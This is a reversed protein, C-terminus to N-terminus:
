YISSSSQDHNCLKTLSLFLLNEDFFYVLLWLKLLFFVSLFVHFTAAITKDCYIKNQMIYICICSIIFDLFKIYSM